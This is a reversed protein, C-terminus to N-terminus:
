GALVPGDARLRMTVPVDQRRAEMSERFDRYVVIANQVRQRDDVPLEELLMEAREVLLRVREVEDDNPLAGAVAWEDLLDGALITERSM